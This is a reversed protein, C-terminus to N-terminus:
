NIVLTKQSFRITTFIGLGGSVNSKIRGPQSFPNFNSRRADRTSELFDYHEKRLSYVRVTISDKKKFIADSFFSFPKGNFSIDNVRFDAYESVFEKFRRGVMFRYYNDINQPDSIMVGVSFSDPENVSARVAVSDIATTKELFATTASINREKKDAIRISYTKTVDATVVRPSYYNYFRGNSTDRSVSNKLTDNRTGDSFIVLADNVPKIIATDTYALSETLLCTLPRGEELYMELILQPEHAPLHVDIVKDCSVIVMLM